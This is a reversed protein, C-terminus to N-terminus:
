SDQGADSNLLKKKRYSGVIFNTALNTTTKLLNWNLQSLTTRVAKLNIHTKLNYPHHETKLFTKWMFTNHDSSVCILKKWNYRFITTILVDIIKIVGNKNM